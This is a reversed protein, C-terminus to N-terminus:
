ELFGFTPWAWGSVGCQCFSFRRLNSAAAAQPKARPPRSLSDVRIRSHVLSLCGKLSFGVNSLKLGTDGLVHLLLHLLIRLHKCVM